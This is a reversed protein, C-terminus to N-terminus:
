EIPKKNKDIIFYGLGVDDPHDITIIESKVFGIEGIKIVMEHYLNTLDEAHAQNDTDDFVIICKDSLCRFATTFDHKAGGFSHDGDIFILDYPGNEVILNSIEETQTDGYSIKHRGKAFKNMHYELYKGSEPHGGNGGGAWDFLFLEVDQDATAVVSASYGHQSGIELYKKPKYEKVFKWLMRHSEMTMGLKGTSGELVEQHIEKRMEEINKFEKM